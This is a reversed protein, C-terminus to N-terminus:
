QQKLDKVDTIEGHFTELFAKVASDERVREMLEERPRNISGTSQSRVTETPANEITVKLGTANGAVAAGAEKVLDVNEKAQLMEFSFRDKAAFEIEICTQNHRIERAHDLLSAVM